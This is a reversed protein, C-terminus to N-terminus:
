SDTERLTKTWGLVSFPSAVRTTVVTTTAWTGICCLHVSYLSLVQTTENSTESFSSELLMPPVTSM